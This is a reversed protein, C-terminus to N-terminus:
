LSREVAGLACCCRIGLVAGGRVETKKDADKEVMTATILAGTIPDYKARELRAPKKQKVEEKKQTHTLTHTHVDFM